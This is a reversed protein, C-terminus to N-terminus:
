KRGYLLGVTRLMWPTRIYGPIFNMQGVASVYHIESVGEAKLEDILTHIDGYISKSGFLDQFAFLGGKRVVRLAERVLQRKDSQTRVEHFVFNSVAADFEGDAFDLKSADGKCFETRGSVGEIDANRECQEKAYDWGFGWYDIGILSAETFKRACRITLAGAGCGIDLLRGHGDWDLHDILFQHIEGMLGGREFSFANRCVQMYITVTLSALLLVGAVLTIIFSWHALVSVATFLLLVASVSYLIRMFPMPIWNGYDPKRNNNQEM